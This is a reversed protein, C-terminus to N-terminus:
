KTLFVQQEGVVSGPRCIRVYAIAECASFRYVRMLYACILTGTRGLGAKCHVAVAGDANDVIDYFSELIEKSPVGGDVFYLDYVAIGQEEFDKKDYEPITTRIITNIGMTQFAQSYYSVTNAHRIEKRGNILIETRTKQPEVPTSLALIKQPVIWNMDGHKVKSMYEYAKYDFTDITYLNCKKARHLGRWCDKVHLGFAHAPFSADIYSLLYDNDTQNENM